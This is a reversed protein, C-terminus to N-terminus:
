SIVWGWDSYCVNEVREGVRTAEPPSWMSRSEGNKESFCTDWSMKDWLRKTIWTRHGQLDSIKAAINPADGVSVLDNNNRVGGRVIFSHGIDIGTRHSIKWASERYQDLWTELKPHVINDVAWKIELAAKAAKNAADNGIFIAMVRDGDFSRIAGQNHTLVRTVTALYCKIIKAATQPTFRRAMGSSDAMDAYLYVADLYVGGHKLGVDDTSPVSRGSRIDFDKYLLEFLHSNYDDKRTM